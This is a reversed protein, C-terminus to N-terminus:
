SQSFRHTTCLRGSSRVMKDRPRIRSHARSSKVATVTMPLRIIHRCQHTIMNTYLRHL